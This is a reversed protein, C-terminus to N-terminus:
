PAPWGAAATAPPAFRKARFVMPRANPRRNRYSGHLENGDLTAELVTNMFDYELTLTGHEFRGSTSAVKRSGEFFLGEVQDGHQAIEFRFPVEVNNVVVVADWRGPIDAASTVRAAMLLGLGVVIAGRRIQDM